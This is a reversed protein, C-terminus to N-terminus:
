LSIIAETKMIGQRSAQEPDPALDYELLGRCRPYNSCGWVKKGQHPGKGAIKPVMASGCDPCSFPTELTHSSSTLILERLQEARQERILEKFPNEIRAGHSCGRTLIM